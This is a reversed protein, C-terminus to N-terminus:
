GLIHNLLRAHDAIQRDHLFGRRVREVGNRGLRGALIPDGILRSVAEGFALLDSPDSVLLGSVGDEVQEGLGGVDSAVVPRCKWMAQAQVAREARYEQAFSFLANVVIVLVIAVAVPVQGAVLALAAAGWLLAAFLYTFNRVLRAPWNPGGTEKLVNPGCRELELRAQESSLGTATARSASRNRAQLTAM